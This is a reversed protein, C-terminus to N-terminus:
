GVNDECGGFATLLDVNDRFCWKCKDVGHRNSYYIRWLEEWQEKDTLTLSGLNHGSWGGFCELKIIPGSLEETFEDMLLDTHCEFSIRCSYALSSESWKGEVSCQVSTINTLNLWSNHGYESWFSAAGILFWSLSAAAAYSVMVVCKLNCHQGM